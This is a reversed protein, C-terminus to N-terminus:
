SSESLRDGKDLILTVNYSLNIKGICGNEEDLYLNGGGRKM